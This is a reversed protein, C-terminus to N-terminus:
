EITIDFPIRMMVESKTDSAEKLSKFIDYYSGLEQELIKSAIQNDKQQLDDLLTQLPDKVQPLNKLRYKEIGALEAAAAIAQNLDGIEDVLGIELAKKGTWVRGQAIENVAEKEMNRGNSVVTLFQDYVHDAMMQLEAGEAAGIGMIPDLATSFRGTKITDVTIGIKEEMLEKATPFMLFVGISGTITNDQAFIKDAEASIYYGGSAAYDGMSVVVPKGKEKALKIHNLINESAQASGGPSNVRLVIAKVKKDDIAKQIHKIYAEDGISGPQGKGPVISGEAYIVAIKDKISLDQKLTSHYDNMSVTKIKKGEEIGLNENIINKVDEKYSVGDILGAALANEPTWILHENAKEKLQEATQDRSEAIDMIFDDYLATIMERVQVKNEPSMRERRFPETASKFKGAYFVEMKVGLKDLMKKFFTISASYGRFELTGAPNLYISDAVSAMYYGNQSYNDAYAIVFKGSEKFAELSARLSNASAMPLSSSTAKLYIGDINDDTAAKEICKQMDSLGLIKESSFALPDMQTNNTRDPIIKSTNVVLVSNDSIDVKAESMSAISGIIGVGLLAFLGFAVLTGLLSAFLFKFFQNM